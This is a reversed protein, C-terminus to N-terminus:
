LYFLSLRPLGAAELLKRELFQKELMTLQDTSMKGRYPKLELDLARRVQALQEESAAAYAQAIMKEEIACLEQELRELDGCLVALDLAELLMALDDYSAKQLADANRKVYGRIQDLPWTPPRDNKLEFCSARGSTRSRWQHLDAPNCIAKILLRTSYVADNQARKRELKDLVFAFVGRATLGNSRGKEILTQVQGAEVRVSYEKLLSRIEDVAADGAVVGDATKGPPGPAAETSTSTGERFPQQQKSEHKSSENLPHRPPYTARAGGKQSAGTRGEKRFSQAVDPLMSAVKKPDHWVADEWVRSWPFILLKASAKFPNARIKVFGLAEWTRYDRTITTKHVKWHHAWSTRKWWVHGKSRAKVIVFILRLASGETIRGRAAADL